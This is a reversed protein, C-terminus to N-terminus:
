KSSLRVDNTITWNYVTTTNPLVGLTDNVNHRLGGPTLTTNFDLTNSFVVVLQDGEEVRM